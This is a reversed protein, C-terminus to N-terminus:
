SIGLEALKALVEDKHELRFCGSYRGLGSIGVRPTDWFDDDIRSREGIWTLFALLREDTTAFRIYVVDTVELQSVDSM